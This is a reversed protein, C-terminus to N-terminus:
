PYPNDSYILSNTRTQRVPKQKEEEPQWRMFDKTPPQDRYPFETLIWTTAHRVKLNFSGKVRPRIFGRDELLKFWKTATDKNVDLRAAAERASLHLDGNNMGNYLSYLEVLLWRAGAPLSRLAPCDLVYRYLRVHKADYAGTRRTKKKSM